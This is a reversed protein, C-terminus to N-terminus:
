TYYIFAQLGISFDVLGFSLRLKIKTTGVSVDYKTFQAIVFFALHKVVANVQKNIIIIMIKKRRKM